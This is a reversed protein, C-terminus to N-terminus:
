YSMQISLTGAVRAVPMLSGDGVVRQSPAAIAGRGVPLVSSPQPIMRTAPRATRAGVTEEAAERVTGGADYDSSRAVSSRATAARRQSM